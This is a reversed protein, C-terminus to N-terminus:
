PFPWPFPRPPNAKPRDPINPKFPAAPGSSMEVM